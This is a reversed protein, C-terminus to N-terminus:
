AGIPRIPMLMGLAGPEAKPEVKIAGTYWREAERGKGTMKKFNDADLTLYVAENSDMAAALDSLLGPNIALTIKKKPEPAEIRALVSDVDPWGQESGPNVESSVREYRTIGVRVADENLAAQVGKEMHKLAPAPIPGPVDGNDPVGLDLKVMSNGTTAYLILHDEGKVRGAEKTSYDPVEVREIRTHAGHLAPTTVMKPDALVRSPKYKRRLKM